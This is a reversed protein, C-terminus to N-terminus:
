SVGADLAGHGATSYRRSQADYPAIVPRPFILVTTVTVHSCDNLDSTLAAAQVRVVRHDNDPVISDATAIASTVLTVIVKTDNVVSRCTKYKIRWM